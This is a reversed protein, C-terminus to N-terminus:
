RNLASKLRQLIKERGETSPGTFEVVEHMRRLFASDINKRLNTTLIVVGDFAELRSLLYAVEINAFRDHADRVETRKAFLADAEDFFLVADQSAADCFLRDLNKETEGIYKSVVVSLDVRILPKGLEAALEIAARSKGTRPPGSFIAKLGRTM